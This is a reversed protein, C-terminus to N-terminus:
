RAFGRTTKTESIGFLPMEYKYTLVVEATRIDHNVDYTYNTVQLEYGVTQAQAICGAIVNANFNSNEIEAIVAAKYEKAETVAGSANAVTICLFLNFMLVMLTGFAGIIQKM